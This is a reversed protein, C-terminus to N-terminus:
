KLGRSVIEFLDNSLKMKALKELQAKMQQGRKEDYRRWTILNSALRSSLRPNLADAEKIIDAVLEYGAGSEHHFGRSNMTFALVLSRARNPNMLTFDPHKALERVRDLIDPLHALAQVRFWKDLVLADGKAEEYFKQVALDRATAGEDDMSTLVSFATMKDTMGTAKEFHELATKAASMKEDKTNAISCLYRLCVNRLRRRGNSNADVKFTENEMEKTLKEYRQMIPNQFKRALMEKASELANSIAIPDVIEMEEALTSETPLILNYAQNSFDTTETDALVRGFADAVYDFTTETPEGKMIKFVLSTYLKQGAEWRNFNDTDHAALFALYSENVEGNEPLLKIPASFSRLLSPVVEGQLGDFTFTQSREKLILITTPVQEAGTEKDLLGVAVPIYLPTESKSTQSLNLKFIGHEYSHSYTVVPTGPTSYWLAFQSLDVNNADAMASLFDDCTVAQGDHREFYLKMGKNFGEVSLITQYMRIIEAGKEYVTATYFNDMAVYSEPRIPHAMPGADESFQRARLLRVDEIRKVAKSNMDGSFEQDRFVTLGEKLTLQFWDRCTVRNGTWNHFYEHGIIGEVREFDDDTATKQDALVCSTNFINLGKNEMAGMNFSSTAVINFTDLDYELGFRDEDWKMARKLCEMAYQLKQVNAHESYLGLHVTKGSPRTVYTGKICGLKGAVAAFLYSPKPFPDSWVTFHRGEQKAEGEEILNGNSLLVPYERKDAEIRVRTFTAMNDPRDPFYTIRRFGMAECQTCYMAGSKYLGSLQTNDEPVIDVVIEMQDGDQLSALIEMRGPYLKYHEKENWAIGNLSISRLAVSSQDGDLIVTETEDKSPIDKNQKWHLISKVTTKGSHIDFELEVTDVTFPLPQYDKRFVEM